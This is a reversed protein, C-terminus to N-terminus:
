ATSHLYQSQLRQQAILDALDMQPPLTKMQEKIAEQKGAWPEANNLAQQLGYPYEGRVDLAAPRLCDQLRSQTLGGQQFADAVEISHSADKYEQQAPLPEALEFRQRMSRPESQETRDLQFQSQFRVDQVMMSLLLGFDGRRNEHVAQSLSSGLQLENILIADPRM